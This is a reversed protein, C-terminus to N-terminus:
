AIFAAVHCRRAQEFHPYVFSFLPDPIKKLCAASGFAGPREHIGPKLQRNGDVPRIM